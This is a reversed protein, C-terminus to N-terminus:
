CKSGKELRRALKRVILCFDIGHPGSQRHSPSATATPRFCLRNGLGGLARECDHSVDGVKLFLRLYAHYMDTSKSRWCFLM